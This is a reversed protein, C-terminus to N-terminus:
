EAFRVTLGNLNVLSRARFGIQKRGLCITSRSCGISEADAPFHIFALSRHLTLTAAIRLPHTGRNKANSLTMCVSVYAHASDQHLVLFNRQPPADYGAPVGDAASRICTGIVHM